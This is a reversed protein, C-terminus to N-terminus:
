YGSGKSYRQTRRQLARIRDEASEPQPSSGDPQVSPLKGSLRVPMNEVARNGSLAPYNAPKDKVLASAAPPRSSTFLPKGTQLPQEYRSDRVMGELKAALEEQGGARLKTIVDLVKARQDTMFYSMGLGLYAYPVDHSQVVEEFYKLAKHPDSQGLLYTWGISLKANVNGPEVDLVKLGHELAATFDGKEYMMKSLTEHAAAYTPDLEVAKEFLWIIDDAKTGQQRHAMGLYYYSQPLRPYMDIVEEYLAIAKPYQGRSYALTAAEYKQKVPNAYVTGASFLNLILILSVARLDM